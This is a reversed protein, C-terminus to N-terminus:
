TKLEAAHSRSPMAVPSSGLTAVEVNILEIRNGFPDAVFAREVGPVSHDPATSYGADWLRALLQEFQQVRLGPHAKRAPQFPEEVGLHLQLTGCRLWLGGRVALQPPKELETLGLLEVYFSRAQAEQDKPMAVQVHDFGIVFSMRQIEKQGTVNGHLRQRAGIEV